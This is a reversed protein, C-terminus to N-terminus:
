KQLVLSAKYFVQTSLKRRNWSWITTFIKVYVINIVQYFLASYSSLCLMFISSFFTKVVLFQRITLCILQFFTLWITLINIRRLPILTHEFIYISSNCLNPKFNQFAFFNFLVDNLSNCCVSENIFGKKGKSMIFSWVWIHVFLRLSPREVSM